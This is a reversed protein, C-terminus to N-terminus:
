ARERAATLAQVLLPGVITVDGAGLTVVLDGPQAMLALESPLESKDAVYTVDAGCARAADAVLEGTVGPVPDERAGYIDTVVVVDALSLSEGFEKAFEITRSFLHPQFCAVLRGEGVVRRAAKLAARIETPHHAYDDFVQVGAVDGIFQFRRLTGEFAAAGSILDSTSVGLLRGVAFAAAANRLNHSGPVRLDVRDAQGEHVLTASTAVGQYTVDTIAVDAAPSMGYGIVTLDPREARLRVALESTLPDDVCLVVSRVHEGTVFRWFGEAYKAPTQWNDLHDAEINTVVAIEAPYQLFSGDSEDAEVVFVDGTGEVASRGSAALPAGVVYSPDISGLMTAIMASTTTKGHTGGVAVGRKGMMLAALAASRHWVRLGRREAEVLEPNDRRIASSVVVTSAEGLQRADHGVFTQIGQDALHRLTASDVHDSGSVAIGRRHYLEAVGSMGAGGIAIFHVPAVAGPDLLSVPERLTM